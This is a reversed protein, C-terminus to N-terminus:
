LKFYKATRQMYFLISNLLTHKLSMSNLVSITISQLHTFKSLDNLKLSAEIKEDPFCLYYYWNVLTTLLILVFGM